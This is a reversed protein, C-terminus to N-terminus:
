LEVIELKWVNATVDSIAMTVLFQNMERREDHWKSRLRGGARCFCRFIEGFLHIQISALVAFQFFSGSLCLGAWCSLSFLGTEVAFKEAFDVRRM